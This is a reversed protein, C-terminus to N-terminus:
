STQGGLGKNINFYSLIASYALKGFVGQTNCLIEKLVYERQRKSQEVRCFIFYLFNESQNECHVFILSM